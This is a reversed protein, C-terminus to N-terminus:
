IDLGARPSAKYKSELTDIAEKLEDDPAEAPLRVALTLYLDGTGEGRPVGRGKLRLKRGSQSGPPVKVKVSGQFTPVEVTAGYLAEGVTVPLELFLDQGERRILPHPQVQVKVLLDGPPGGGAGPLGQGALRIRQGDLVGAPIKVKLRSQGTRLGSGGCSECAATGEGGTGKCSGCTRPKDISIQRSAGLVAERLSIRISAGTDGGRRRAPKPRFGSFPSARGSEKKRQGFLDGLIDGLDFGGTAQGGGFDFGGMGSPDFGEFGAARGGPRTQWKKYARAQEPDFGMRLADEGFEDYMKRKKEDSLVEFASTAEKFRKEAEADGPKVDPHTSRAIKRYAKKIEQPSANKKVGLVAYLDKPSM